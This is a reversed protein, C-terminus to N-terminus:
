LHRLEVLRPLSTFYLATRTPRQEMAAFLKRYRLLQGTHLQLQATIFAAVTQDAAPAGTKYDIIWRVGHSDIFTRDVVFQRLQGGSYDSLRLECQSDELGAAFVWGHEADTISNLVSREIFELSQQLMTEQLPLRQLQLHWHRRM